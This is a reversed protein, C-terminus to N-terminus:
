VLASTTTPGLHSPASTVLPRPPLPPLPTRIGATQGYSSFLIFVGFVFRKSVNLYFGIM